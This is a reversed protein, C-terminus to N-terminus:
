DVTICKNPHSSPLRILTRHKNKVKKLTIKIHLILLTIKKNFWPRDKGDCM